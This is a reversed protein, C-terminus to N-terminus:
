SESLWQGSLLREACEALDAVVPVVGLTPARATTRGNGTQVLVPQCGAARAAEIDRLSDGVFLAEAFQAPYKKEIAHLLGPKPKRCECADEPHHPCYFIEQLVGGCALIAQHMKDHIACLAEETFLGRALGSQNTAVVVTHGAQHLRAIAELSGPIPHWEEPSKIYAESEINIVGDRDLIVLRSPMRRSKLSVNLPESAGTAQEAAARAPPERDASLKGDMLAPM